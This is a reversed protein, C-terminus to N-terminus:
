SCSLCVLGFFFTQFFAIDMVELILIQCSSGWNRLLLIDAKLMIFLYLAAAIPWVVRWRWWRCSLFQVIESSPFTPWCSTNLHPLLKQEGTWFAQPKVNAWLDQRQWCIVLWLVRWEVRLASQIPFYAASYKAVHSVHIKYSWPCKEKIPIFLGEMFNFLFMTAANWEWSWLM